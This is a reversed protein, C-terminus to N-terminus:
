WGTTGPGGKFPGVVDGTVWGGYFGGAQPDVKEDDIYCADVAGAYFAYHDKIAAYPQTPKEYSWAAESSTQGGVQVSWYSASGKWECFSQKHSPILLETATDDAPIYWTPPHSTELLRYCHASDALVVGSFM